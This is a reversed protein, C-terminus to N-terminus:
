FYRFRSGARCAYEWVEETPLRYGDGRMQVGANIEYYPTLGERKSLANCFEIADKWNIGHVPLDDGQQSFIPDESTVARYECKKM